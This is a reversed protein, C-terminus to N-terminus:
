DTMSTLSIIESQLIDNFNSWHDMFYKALLVFLCVSMHLLMIVRGEDKPSSSLAVSFELWFLVFWVWFLSWFVMVFVWLKYVCECECMCEVLFYSFPTSVISSILLRGRMQSMVGRRPVHSNSTVGWLILWDWWRLIEESEIEMLLFSAVALGGIIKERWEREKNELSCYCLPSFFFRLSTSQNEEWSGGQSLLTHPCTPFPLPVFPPPPSDVTCPHHTMTTKADTQDSDKWSNGTMWWWIWGALIIM